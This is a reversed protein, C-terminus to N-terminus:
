LLAFSKDIFRLLCACLFEPHDYTNINNMALLNIRSVVLKRKCGVCVSVCM